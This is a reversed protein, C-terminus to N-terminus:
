PLGGLSIPFFWAALAGAAIAVGYPVTHAGPMDLSRREGHRGFTVLYLMLDRTGALVPLIVGRRLAMLFGLVGGAVGGYLVVPLLGGPGTFAGVAALLKADGAGIGGLAFLPVALALAVMIGFLSTSPFSGMEVAALGLGAVAGSVTLWNPIRRSRVDTVVATVLLTTLALLKLTSLTM